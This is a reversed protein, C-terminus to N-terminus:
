RKAANKTKKGKHKVKGVDKKAKGKAVKAKNKAKKGLGMVPERRDQPRRQGSIARVHPAGVPRLNWVLHLEFRCIGIALGESREPALGACSLGPGPGLVLVAPLWFGAPPAAVSGIVAASVFYSPGQSCGSCASCGNSHAAVALRSTWSSTGSRIPTRISAMRPLSSTGSGQQEPRGTKSIVSLPCPAEHAAPCAQALAPRCSLACPLPASPGRAEGHRTGRLAPDPQFSRRLDCASKKEPRKGEPRSIASYWSGCGAVWWRGRSSAGRPYSINRSLASPQM